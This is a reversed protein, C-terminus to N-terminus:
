VVTMVNVCVSNTRERRSTWKDCVGIFGGWVCGLVVDSMGVGMVGVAGRGGGGGGGVTGEGGREPKKAHWGGGEKKM